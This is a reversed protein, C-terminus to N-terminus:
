NGVGDWGMLYFMEPFFEAERGRRLTRASSGSSLSYPLPCCKDVKNYLLVGKLFSRVVMIFLVKWNYLLKKWWKRWHFFNGSSHVVCFFWIRIIGKLIQFFIRIIIFSVCFCWTGIIGKLKIYSILKFIFSILLYDVKVKQLFNM